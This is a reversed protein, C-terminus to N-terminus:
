HELNIPGRLPEVALHKNKQCEQTRKALKDACPTRALVQPQRAVICREHQSRTPLPAHTARLDLEAFACARTGMISGM